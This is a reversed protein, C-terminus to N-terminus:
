EISGSKHAKKIMKNIIFLLRNNAHQKSGNVSATLKGSVQRVFVLYVVM